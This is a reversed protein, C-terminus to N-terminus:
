VRRFCCYLFEQTVTEPSHHLQRFGEILEFQKGFEDQLTKEDYRKVDLGSCTPPGAPGYTGVILHGGPKIAHVAQRVYTTREEPQTLFHFAARDHWIEYASPELKADLIDAVVWHVCGAKMDLRQRAIKLATESIDLVTVNEYGLLLLDDVLTSGGGGVDIIPASLSSALRKILSLSITLQPCYWSLMDPRKTAYVSEWHSHADM